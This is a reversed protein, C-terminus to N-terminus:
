KKEDTKPAEAKPAVKEPAEVKPATLTPGGDSNTDLGKKVAPALKAGNEACSKLFAKMDPWRKIVMDSKFGQTIYVFAPFESADNWKKLEAYQESILRKVYFYRESAPDFRATISILRNIADQNKGLAIDIEVVKIEIAAGEKDGKIEKLIEIQEKAAAMYAKSEEENGEKGLKKAVVLAKESLLDRVSVIKRRYQIEDELLALYSKTGPVIGADTLLKYVDSGPAPGVKLTACDKFEGTASKISELKALAKENNQNLKDDKPRRAGNEALQVGEATDYMYDILVGHEKICRDQKDISPYTIIKQMAKLFPGYVKEDDQLRMNKNQPDFKKLLKIAVDAAKKTQGTKDFLYVLRSYDDLALETSNSEELIEVREGQLDAVMKDYEVLMADYKDATEKPMNPETKKLKELQFGAILYRDSLKNLMFVFLKNDDKNANRFDRLSQMTSKLYPDCGPAPTAAAQSLLARYKNLYAIHAISKAPPNEAEFAIYEDATKVAQDWNGAGIYLSNKALLIQGVASKRRALVKEDTTPNKAVHEDYKLYGALAKEALEKGVKEAEKPDMKPLLGDSVIKQAQTLCYAAHVLAFDYAASTTKVKGFKEAASLRKAYAQKWLETANDKSKEDGIAEQKKANETLNSSVKEDGDAIIYDQDSVSDPDLPTDGKATTIIIKPKLAINWPDKHTRENQDLAYIINTGSKALMGDKEKPLDLTALAQKIKPTYAKPEKKENPLWKVRNEPLFSDRLAKYAIIAEYDHKMRVYSIGMEFWAKPEITLRTELPTEPRRAKAIARRYYDVANAFENYAEKFKAPAKEKDKPDTSNLLKEYEQTYIFRGVLQMGRAADYWEEAKLNLSIKKNRADILIEGMARSFENSWTSGAREKTIAARLEKIAKEYEAATEAPITLARAYEIILEKGNDEDFITRMAGSRIKVYYEEVDSYKKAKMKMKILDHLVLKIISVVQKKVDEPQTALDIELVDNWSKAAGDENGIAAHLSGQSYSYQATIAPFDALVEDDVRKQCHAIIETAITKRAADKEDLVEVQKVKMLVFRRDPINWGYFAKDLPEIFAMGPVRGEDKPNLRKMEDNFRKLAAQFEPYAKEAEEKYGQAKKDFMAGAEARFRKAEAPNNKANDINNTIIEVNITDSDKSATDFLRFKKDGATVEKYLDSAEKLLVARKEVTAEGAKRRKLAARILKSEMKVVTSTSEDLRTTLREILDYTAYSPSNLDMLQKAYEYESEARASGFSGALVLTACAFSFRFFASNSNM